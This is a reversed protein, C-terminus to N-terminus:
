RWDIPLCERRRRVNMPVLITENKLANGLASMIPSNLSLPAMNLKFNAVVEIPFYLSCLIYFQTFALEFQFKFVPWQLVFLFKILFISGVALFFFASVSLALFSTTSILCLSLSRILLAGLRFFWQRASSCSFVRGTPYPRFVSCQLSM